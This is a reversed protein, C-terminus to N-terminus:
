TREVSFVIGACEDSKEILDVAAWADLQSDFVEALESSGFTRVGNLRPTTLWRASGQPGVAKIVFRSEPLGSM